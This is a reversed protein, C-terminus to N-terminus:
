AKGGNQTKLKPNKTEAYARIGAASFRVVHEVIESLDFRPAGLEGSQEFMTKAAIVHMLQGVVSLIVLQVEMEKLGPCIQPIAKQLATMVPFIMEKVFM